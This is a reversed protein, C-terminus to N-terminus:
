EFQRSLDRRVHDIEDELRQGVWEASSMLQEQGIDGRSILALITEIASRIDRQPDWAAEFPAGAEIAELWDYLAKAGREIQGRGKPFDGNRATSLGLFLRGMHDDPHLKLAHELSACADAFRGTHYQARGLYTWGSERLGQSEFTYDPNDRVAQAFLAVADEYRKRLFAERGSQFRGAVKFARVSRPLLDFLAM